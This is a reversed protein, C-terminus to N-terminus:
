RLVKNVSDGQKIIYIGHADGAADHRVGRLDYVGDPLDSKFDSIVDDVGDPDDYEAVIKKIELHHQGSSSPTFQISKFVIPFLAIDRTGEWLVATYVTGEPTSDAPEMTLSEARANDAYIVSLTIGALAKDGTDVVLSVRRPVSYLRIDKSLVVRPGRTSTVNFDLSFSLDTGNGTATMVPESTASKTVSWEDPNFPGAEVSIDTDPRPEASVSMTASRDEIRATVVAKGEAVAVIEGDGAIAVPCPDSESEIAWEVNEPRYIFDNGDVTSVFEIPEPTQDIVLNKIRFEFPSEVIEITKSVSVNGLTARIVGRAAMSGAVIRSGDDTVTGVETDAEFKIGEVNESVLVGYRNYGLIAPSFTAYTPIRITRQAFEIRSIESDDPATSYVLMGNAVARPTSETTTNVIRDGVLMMASGGSDFNTLNSCGYHRAIQCMVASTCGSSSGYVADISKDIVFVYLKNHDASTGYGTKSYILACNESLTNLETLEGDIMVQGNGGIMNDFEIPTGDLTTWSYNLTVSEGATLKALAERGGDRGVLALDYDGLTGMDTNNKVEVVEFEIDRGASWKQGDKLKLYVETAVGHVLDFGWRNGSDRWVMDACKMTNTAGYYSNFMVIENAHVLKNSGQIAQSGMSVSKVSGTWRFHDSYVKGDPTVGVEGIYEPGRDWQNAACNTETIIKGNRLNANFTTGVLYDSYPYSTTVCWFNGNAGAFARHEEYSQREAAKVLLETGFLKENAQTTEIRVNPDTVDVELMNINLPYEPIRLRRYLTGPGIQRETLTDVAYERGDITITETIANGTLFTLCAIVLLVLKKM